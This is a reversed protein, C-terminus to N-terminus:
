SKIKRRHIISLMDEQYRSLAYRVLDERSDHPCIATAALKATSELLASPVEVSVTKLEQIQEYGELLHVPPNLYLTDQKM